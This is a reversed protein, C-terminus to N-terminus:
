GAIDNITRLRLDAAYRDQALKKLEENWPTPLPHSGQRTSNYVRLTTIPLHTKVKEIEEMPILVTPLFEGAHSLLAVQSRLHCDTIDDPSDYVARVFEEFTRDPFPSKLSQNGKFYRYASALRELPDRIIAVRPWGPYQLVLQDKTIFDWKGDLSRKISSSAVKGIPLYVVEAEYCVVPKKYLPVDGCKVSVGHLVKM